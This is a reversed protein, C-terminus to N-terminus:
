NCQGIIRRAKNGGGMILDPINRCQLSGGVSNGVVDLLGTNGNAVLNGTVTNDFATIASANDLVVLDGGIRNGTCLLPNASGVRVAAAGSGELHLNSGITTGCVSDNADSPSTGKVRLHGGIMAAPAITFSGAGGVTVNGGVMAGILGLHGDVNVDGTIQGGNIFV